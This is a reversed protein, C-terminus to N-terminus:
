SEEWLRNYHPARDRVSQKTRGYKKKWQKESLTDFDTHAMWRLPVIYKYSARRGTGGGRMHANVVEEGWGEGALLGTVECPQKRMFAVREKSHFQTRFKHDQIEKRRERTTKM